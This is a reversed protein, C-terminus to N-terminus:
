QYRMNPDPALRQAAVQPFRELAEILDAVHPTAAIQDTDLQHAIAGGLLGKRRLPGDTMGDTPACELVPQDTIRAGAVHSAHQTVGDDYRRRVVGTFRLQRLEDPLEGPRDLARQGC